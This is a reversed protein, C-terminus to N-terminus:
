TTRGGNSPAAKGVPAPGASLAAKRVSLHRSSMPRDSRMNLKVVLEALLGLLIFYVGAMSTLGLTVIMAQAWRTSFSLSEPGLFGIAFYLIPIAVFPLSLMTFYPLPGKAFSSLMKMTLLDLAVRAARGIGYKSVGHIRPRHNVVMEAIRAGSALSLVPLFRHQEGYIALNAILERRFAKLTCGTDHVTAGSIRAIMRNAIRSPVKRLMLGDQRNKRWGVVIDYGERLKAVLAPIDKPDNQLDADLTVVVRGRSHEFGASMAPTQGFNRRFRVIRVHPDEERLQLLVEFSRDKSRDDVYIVEWSVGMGGVHEAIEAHLVPLNEEEDYVPIM